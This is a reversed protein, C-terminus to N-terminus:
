VPKPQTATVAPVVTREPPEPPAPATIAAIDAPQINASSLGCAAAHAQCLLYHHWEEYATRDEDAEIPLQPDEPLRDNWGM